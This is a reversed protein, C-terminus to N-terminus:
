LQEEETPPLSLFCGHFGAKQEGGKQEECTGGLSLVGVRRGDTTAIARAEPIGPPYSPARAAKAGVASWDAVFGRSVKGDLVNSVVTEENRRGKHRIFVGDSEALLLKGGGFFRCLTVVIGRQPIHGAGVSGGFNRGQLELGANHLVICAPQFDAIQVTVIAV